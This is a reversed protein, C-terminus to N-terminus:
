NKKKNETFLRLLEADVSGSPEPKESRKEFSVKRKKESLYSLFERSGLVGAGCERAFNRISRDDSVVVTSRRSSSMGVKKKIVDDATEPLSSFIIELNKAPTQISGSHKGDFVIMVTERAIGSYLVTRILEDRASEPNQRMLKALKENSLIVNYGDILWRM